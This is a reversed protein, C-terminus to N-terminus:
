HGPVVDWSPSEYAKVGLATDVTIRKRITDIRWLHTHLELTYGPPMQAAVCSIDPKFYQYDLNGRDYVWHGQSMATAAQDFGFPYAQQSWAFLILALATIKKL